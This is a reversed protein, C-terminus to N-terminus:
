TRSPRCRTTSSCRTATSATATWARPAPIASARLSSESEDPPIMIIVVTVPGFLGGGDDIGAHKSITIM